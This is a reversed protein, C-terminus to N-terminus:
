SAAETPLRRPQQAGRHLGSAITQLAQRHSYAGAAVHASAAEQLTHHAHHHDLLGAGVLQGLAVGVTFLTNNRTGPGAAGLRRLEGAIAAAAYRDLAEVSRAASAPPPPELPFPLPATLLAAFWDPLRAPPRNDTIRYRGDATGTPPAVVYGGAARTDIYPAVRSATNALAPGHRPARYYRHQGGRPTAVTFTAPLRRGHARELHALHQVGTRHDPAKPIDLDVVVLRSPGTAVGIGYRRHTWAARIRAPDTTARQEWGTHGDCCRRDTHDCLHAPHDPTAPKKTGPRLPFVHWGREAYNLAATLLSAGTHHRTPNTM